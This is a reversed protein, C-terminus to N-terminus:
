NIERRYKCCRGSRSGQLASSVLRSLGPLWRPQQAIMAEFRFAAAIAVAVGSSGTSGESSSMNRQRPPPLSTPRDHWMICYLPFVTMTLGPVGVRSAALPCYSSAPWCGAYSPRAASGKKSSKSRLM